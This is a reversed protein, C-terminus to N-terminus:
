AKPRFGQEYRLDDIENITGHPSVGPLLCDINKFGNEETILSDSPHVSGTYKCGYDGETGDGPKGPIQNGWNRKPGGSLPEVYYSIGTKNSYVIFRGTDDTNELFREKIKM